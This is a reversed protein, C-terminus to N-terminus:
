AAFLLFSLAMALGGPLPHQSALLASAGISLFALPSVSLGSARQLFKALSNQGQELEVPLGADRLTLAIYLAIPLTWVLDVPTGPKWGHLYMLDGITELVGYAFLFISLRIFFRRERAVVSAPLRLMCCLLLALNQIIFATNENLRDSRLFVLAYLVVFFSVEQLRDLWRVRDASRYTTNVALLIPLGFLLWLADDWRVGAVLRAPIFLFYVYLAQGLSWIGFSAAVAVWCRRGVADAVFTRQHLTVGCAILPLILQALNSLLVADRVFLLVSLHALMAFCVLLFLPRAMFTRRRNSEKM